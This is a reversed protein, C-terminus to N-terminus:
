NPIVYWSGTFNHTIEFNITDNNPDKFLSKTWEIELDYLGLLAVDSIVETTTPPLSKEIEIDM